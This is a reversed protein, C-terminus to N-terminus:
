FGYGNAAQCNNNNDAHHHFYCPLKVRPEMRVHVYFHVLFRLPASCFFRCPNRDSPCLFRLLHVFNHSNVTARYWLGRNAQVFCMQLQKLMLLAHDFNGFNSNKQSTKWGYKYQVYVALKLTRTHERQASM